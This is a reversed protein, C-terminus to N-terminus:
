LLALNNAYRIEDGKPAFLFESDINMLKVTLGKILFQIKERKSENTEKAGRHRLVEIM